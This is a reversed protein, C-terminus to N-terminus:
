EKLIKGSYFVKETQIRYLYLGKELDYLYVRQYPKIPLEKVIQGKLDYLYLVGEEKLGKFVLSSAVPNPYPILSETKIKSKTSVAISPDYPVGVNSIRCFYFDIAQSNSYVVGGLGIASSDSLYVLQNFGCGLSGLTGDVSFQWALSSDANLKRFYSSPGGIEFLFSGDTHMFPKGIGGISEGGWIKTNNTISRMSLYNKADNSVMTGALLRKEFPAEKILSKDDFNVFSPTQYLFNSSLQNGDSDVEVRWIKSGANGSLLYHGEPTEEVHNGGTNPNANYHNNWLVTGLQDFKLAFMDNSTNNLGLRTGILLFNGDTTRILKEISPAKGNSDLTTRFFLNGATDVLSLRLRNPTISESAAIYVLNNDGLTCKPPYCFQNLNKLWVTDGTTLNIKIAILGLKSTSGVVTGYKRSQGFGIVSNESIQIGDTLNDDRTWGFKNEWIIQQALM